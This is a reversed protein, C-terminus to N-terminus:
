GISGSAKRRKRLWHMGVGVAIGVGFITFSSPEPIVQPPAGSRILWSGLVPDSLGPPGADPNIGVRGYEELYTMRLVVVASGILDPDTGDNTDDYLGITNAGWAPSSATIGVLALFAPLDSDPPRTEGITLSAHTFFTSLDDADAFRFGPFLGGSGFESPVDDYSRNTSLNVDLWSLGTETDYTINWGDQPPDGNGTIGPDRGRVLAAQGDTTTCVVCVMVCSLLIARFM